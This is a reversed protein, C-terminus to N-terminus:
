WLTPHTPRHVGLASGASIGIQDPRSAYGHDRSLLKALCPLLTVPIENSNSNNKAAKCKTTKQHRKLWGQSVVDGCRLCEIQKKLHARNRKRSPRSPERGRDYCKRCHGKHKVMWKYNEAGCKICTCCACTNTLQFDSSTESDNIYTIDDRSQM